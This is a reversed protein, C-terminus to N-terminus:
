ISYTSKYKANNCKDSKTAKSLIFILKAIIIVALLCIAMPKLENPFDNEITKPLLM